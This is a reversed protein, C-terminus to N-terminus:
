WPSHRRGASRPFYSSAPPLPLGPSTLCRAAAYRIVAREREPSPSSPTARRRKRARGIGHRKTLGYPALFEVFPLMAYLSALFILSALAVRHRKFKWWILKLSSARYFTEEAASLAKATYPDFPKPNAYHDSGLPTADNMREPMQFGVREFLAIAAKDAERGDVNKHIKLAETVQDGITHVPSLSTMPEQFIM